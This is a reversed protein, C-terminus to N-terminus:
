QPPALYGPVRRDVNIRMQNSQHRNRQGGNNGNREVFEVSNRLECYGDYLHSQDRETTLQPFNQRQSVGFLLHQMKIINGTRSRPTSNFRTERLMKTDSVMGFLVAAFNYHIANLACFFHYHVGSLNAKNMSVGHARYESELKSLTFFSFKDVGDDLQGATDILPFGFKTFLFLAFWIDWSRQNKRLVKRDLKFIRMLVLVKESQLQDSDMLFSQVLPHQNLLNEYQPSKNYLGAHWDDRMMTFIEAFISFEDQEKEYFEKANQGMTAFAELACKMTEAEFNETRDRFHQRRLIQMPAWNPDTTIDFGDESKTDDDHDQNRPLPQNRQHSDSNSADADDSGNSDTPDDVPPTPTPDAADDGDVSM